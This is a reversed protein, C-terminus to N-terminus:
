CLPPRTERAWGHKQRGTKCRKAANQLKELLKRSLCFSCCGKTPQLQPEKKDETAKSQRAKNKSRRGYQLRLEQNIIREGDKKRATECPCWFQYTETTSDGNREKDRERKGVAWAFNAETKGFCPRCFSWCYCAVHSWFPAAFISDTHM